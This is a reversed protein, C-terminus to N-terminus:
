SIVAIARGLPREYRGAGNLRHAIFVFSSHTKTPSVRWSSHQYARFESANFAAWQQTKGDLTRKPDFAPM